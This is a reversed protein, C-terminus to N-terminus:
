ISQLDLVKFIELAPCLIYNGQINNQINSDADLGWVWQKHLLSHADEALRTNETYKNLSLFNSKKKKQDFWYSFNLFVEMVKSLEQGDSDSPPLLLIMKYGTRGERLRRLRRFNNERTMVEQLHLNKM